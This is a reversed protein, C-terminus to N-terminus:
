QVRQFTDANTMVAHAWPLKILQPPLGPLPSKVGSDSVVHLGIIALEEGAFSSDGLATRFVGRIRQTGRM